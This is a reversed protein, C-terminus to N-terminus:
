KLSVTRLYRNSLDMILELKQDKPTTSDEPLGNMGKGAIVTPQYHRV